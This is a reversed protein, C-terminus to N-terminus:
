FLEYEKHAETHKQYKGSEIVQLEEHTDETDLTVRPSPSISVSESM